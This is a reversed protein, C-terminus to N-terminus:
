KCGSVSLLCSTIAIAPPMVGKVKLIQIIQLHQLLLTKLLTTRVMLCYIIGKLIVIQCSVLNSSTPIPFGSPRHEGGGTVDVSNTFSWPTEFFTIPGNEGAVWPTAKQYNPSEPYFSDWQMVMLNPDFEAGMSADEYTPVTLDLTGDGNVDYYNFWEDENPGDGYYGYGAGYQTQYKPFTSKDIFGTTVNSSINVGVGRAKTMGKAGKKTTIIIVGNAARSGYLATAAAGKLINTVEIDAPNIDSAANGFDYGHRGRIQDDTNTNDNNVPIGDIVILAQNNGTISSSGRIIVNSSGGMNGTSKVQVGAAKGSLTSIFNNSKVQNLEDGSLEQTAYGLSKKERSIGLATVVVGEINFVDPEMSIDISTQSGITIEQPTMGIFSFVLTTASAPVSLSYKGDLGTVTGISTAKVVVQVGPIPLGDDSSIVKGSIDRDQAHLFQMGIFFMFALFLTFKRM